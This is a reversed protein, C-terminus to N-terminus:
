GTKNMKKIIESINQSKSYNELLKHAM